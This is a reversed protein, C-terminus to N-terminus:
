EVAGAAAGDGPQGGSARRVDVAEPQGSVERHEHLEREGHIGQAEGEAVPRVDLVVAPLGLAGGAPRRDVAAAALNGARDPGVGPLRHENWVRVALVLVVADHERDDEVGLASAGEQEDEVTSVEGLPRPRAYRVVYGEAEVALEESRQGSSSRWTGSAGDGGG